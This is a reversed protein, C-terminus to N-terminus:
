EIVPQTFLGFQCALRIGGVNRGGFLQPSNLRLQWAAMNNYKGASLTPRAGLLCTQVLPVLCKLYSSLKRWIKRSRVISGNLFHDIEVCRM